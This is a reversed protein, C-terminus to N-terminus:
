VPLLATCCRVCRAISDPLHWGPLNSRRRFPQRPDRKPDWPGLDTQLLDATQGLVPEPVPRLKVAIRSALTELPTPEDAKLPKLTEAISDIASQDNGRLPTQVESFNLGTFAETDMQNRNVGSLLVPIVIINPDLTRRWLLISAERAVWKTKFVSESLLVVAGHCLGMMTYIEDRWDEGPHLCERDVLVSFGDAKLRVSLQEMFDIADQDQNSHSIFVRTAPM